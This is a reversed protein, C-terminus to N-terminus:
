SGDFCCATGGPSSNTAWWIVRQAVIICDPAISAFTRARLAREAVRGMRGELVRNTRMRSMVVWTGISRVARVRLGNQHLLRKMKGYGLDMGHDRGAM